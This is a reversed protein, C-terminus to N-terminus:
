NGLTRSITATASGSSASLVVKAKVKLRRRARRAGKAKASLPVVLTYTGAKKVTRATTTLSAGSVRIRGKESVRVSVRLSASGAAVKAVSV